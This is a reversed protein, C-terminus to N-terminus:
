DARDKLETPVLKLAPPFSYTAEWCTGLDNVLQVRLPSALAGPAPMALLPGRARVLIQAKGPVLGEKLTVSEIGAPTPKM